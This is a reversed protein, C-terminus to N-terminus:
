FQYRDTKGEHSMTEGSGASSKDFSNPVSFCGVELPTDSPFIPLKYFWYQIIIVIDINSLLILTLQYYWYQIIIDIDFSLILRLLNGILLEPFSLM